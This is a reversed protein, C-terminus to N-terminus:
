KFYKYLEKSMNEAILRRGKENPHTTDTGTFCEARNSATIGSGNYNDIVVLDYENGIEKYLQIYDTLKIGNIEKTNSDEVFNGSDDIWFRYVPTCLVIDIHPYKAKITEISYKAASKVEDLSKGNKFDNTGYAITIIDVSNFDISKLTPLCRQYATPANGSNIVADQTTWDGTTIADALNKMGFPEYKAASNESMQASGFGVNHVTAATETAIMSSIDVPSKYNGFISDGFNVITKGKLNYKLGQYYKSYLLGETDSTVLKADLTIEKATRVDDFMNVSYITGKFNQTNGARNDGGVCFNNTVVPLAPNATFAEKLVGDIYLNVRSGNITVAIHVPDLSRIDTKFLYTYGVGGTKYYFRLKGDNYVEINIQGENGGTYNGIIVGARDSYDPNLQVVAEYTKPAASLTDIRNLTTSSPLGATTSFDINNEGFREESTEGVKLVKKCLTCEKHQAGSSTSTPAIDVIWESESHEDGSTNKPCTETDFVSSHLLNSKDITGKISADLIEAGSRVNSYLNISYLSGKFYQVNGTRNDGGIHYNSLAKSPITYALSKTEVKKGDVYLAAVKNDVTVAIHRPNNSRIDTKFLCNLKQGAATYFLRVRGFTFLELNLQPETGEKYNGVIVGAREDFSEPVSLTAEITHPVSSLASSIAFDTSASFIKGDGKTHPINEIVNMYNRTAILGEENGTLAIADRAIEEATRVDSFVNLSYITGKFFQANGYRKDGGVLLNDYANTPLESSLTISDTKKGNLYMTAITGDITVAIHVPTTRRIDTKFFQSIKVGKEDVFFIKIRGGDIVEFNFANVGTESKYNGLIIGGRTTIESPLQVVAEITRPQASLSGFSDKESDNYTKGTFGTSSQNETAFDVSYILEDSDPAVYISDKQIEENTRGDAFINVSYITGKFYQPNGERNDGGVAYDVTSNALEYPLNLTETKIGNVFLTATHGDIRVATHTPKDSRIDTGFICDTRQHKKNVSFLRLKGNEYVELSLANTKQSSTYNGFIVGARDSIDKPVSITAEITLPSKELSSSLKHLSDPTFTKGSVSVISESVDFFEKAYILSDTDDSVGNVDSAIEEATRVDDFLSLSYIGGQFYQINGTRNDGGIKYGSVAKQPLAITLPSTEVMKGDIYLTAISDDITVAIHKKKSSRMDTEFICNQRTGNEAIYFLRLKGHEMVELNIVNTSEMSTYNGLIVGARSSISKPLQLEVEITRPANDFSEAISFTVNEAFTKEKVKREESVFYGSHLLNYSSDPVVFVDHMIETATRLDGFINVSYITGKFYKDHSLANEGIAYGETAKTPLPLTLSISENKSGNLYLTATDNGLAVAIHTPTGVPIKSGFDYTAKEGNDSVTIFQVKRDPTVALSLAPSNEALLNGVIVGGCAADQPLAVTAEITRPATAFTKNIHSFQAANFTKGTLKFETALYSTDRNESFRSSYILSDPDDTVFIADRKIEEPTRVSNFLNVSYITGKFHSINGSRNDGGVLFGEATLNSLAFPLTKTEVLEGNLFLNAFSGDITLAVNIPKESRLDTDFICDIKQGDTNAFYLRAKGSHYVEFNLQPGNDTAYNGVIVGGREILGKNLQITAEITLPIESIEIPILSDKGNYFTKGNIGSVDTINEENYVLENSKLVSGCLTCEKHRIGNQAATPERDVIWDSETHIATLKVIKGCSLCERYTYGDADETPEVSKTEGFNHDNLAGSVSNEIFTYYVSDKDCGNTEKIVLAFNSQFYMSGSHMNLSNHLTVFQREGNEVYSFHLDKNHIKGFDRKNFSKFGIDKGVVLDDFSSGDFTDTVTYIKNKVNKNKHFAETLMTELQKGLTFGGSYEAANWAFNIYDESDYLKRMYKCYPNCNEDWTLTGGGFPTFYLEFVSDNEGGIYVIRESEDIESAKGDLILNIQETSKENMLHQLLYIQEQEKYQPILRLYNIATKYLAEHNTIITGTQLKYNANIATSNIGDLNSSSTYVANKHAVGNMDLYHSVACMKTHMMDNGGRGGNSLSWQCYTFDLYDDIVGNEVYAPDCPDNLKTTFYDNLNLASASVPYADRHGIANVHIGMKAATILLYSIRVFGYQDYERDQLDRMYGFYRSNRNINVAAQVSFRYSAIDIYVEEQPHAQKYLIAQYIMTGQGFNPNDAKGNAPYVFTDVMVDQGNIDPFVTTNKSMFNSKNSLKPLKDYTSNIYADSSKLGLSLVDNVSVPEKQPVIVDPEKEPEYQNYTPISAEAENVTLANAIANEWYSDPLPVAYDVDVFNSKNIYLTSNESNGYIFSGLDATNGSVTMGNITVATGSTTIYMVGGRTASNGKATTNYFKAISGESAYIAGGYSNSTNEKFTCDQFIADTGGTYVVVAGGNGDATNSEFITNYIKTVTNSYLSIAGAISSSHNSHIYSNYLTLYSGDGTYLFGGSGPATNETATINNMVASAGNYLCVAGGMHMTANDTFNVSDLEIISGSAYIAGGDSGEAITTNKTFDSDKIYAMVKNASYIAGGSSNASNSEVKSNKLSLIRHEKAVAHRTIYFAGGLSKSASGKLLSNTVTVKSNIDSSSSYSVYIAGGNKTASSNLIESNDVNLIVSHLAIAGGHQGAKSNEFFSDKINIESEGAAYIVGGQSDCYNDTFTCNTIDTKSRRDLNLVGGSGGIAKNETFKCNIATLVPGNEYSGSASTLIIAGGSKAQNGTFECDTLEIFRPVYKEINYYGFIAGGKSPAINGEFTTNWAAMQGYAAIAGANGSLAQNGNFTTNGYCILVSMYSTYIAGAGTAAVNNEFLVQSDSAEPSSGIHLHAAATNASYIAGGNRTSENGIFEGGLINAIRYNYIAGGRLSKNGEFRGGYINLNSYNIIAGGLSSIYYSNGEEDYVMDTFSSNNKYNGGYISLTGSAVVAMAGGWRDPSGIKHYETHTRLNSTKYANVISVNKHLDVKAGNCVFLVSGHVSETVKDRNGDITLLNEKVSLPNGLTLKIIGNENLVGKGDSSEGVVFIDGLFNEARTLTREITSFITTNSGIYFTRDIEFDKVVRIYPFKESLAAELQASSSVDIADKMHEYSENGYDLYKPIEGPTDYVTLKNYIAKSWYASDYNGSHDLDTYKSKDIYLKANTTNGWIIPAGSDDTNGSVTLGVATVNTGAATHYMFGGHGGHNNKATINYIYLQSKGSVFIAGGYAESTNDVFECSHLTVDTGSTYVSVAGANGGASNGIFKTAYVSGTASTYFYIAGAAGTSVSNKIESNYINLTAGTNYAFGGSSGSNGDAKIDNMLLNSEQSLYLAGGYSTSSNNDITARNIEMTAAVSSIAGGQKARNESFTVLFLNARAESIYIAGGYNTATNKTFSTATVNLELQNEKGNGSDIFVAGASGVASNEQFISNEITTRPNTAYIAGGHGATTSNSKFTTNNVTLVNRSSIAGGDDDSTNGEFVVKNEVVENEEGIYLFAGTSNPVYIAGGQGSSTNNTITANYIYAKRYNFLFGGRNAHNGSFNGGYIKLTGFNYIAGGTSSTLSGDASDSANLVKNNTYSGGYINMYSSSAVIIAAGGVQAPYSVGYKETLTKENGVKKCNKITLNEYLNATSSKVVFIASGVVDVTMNDSNGDITLLDKETSEESGLNFKVGNKIATGEATEGVVFIDGAFNADRTLTHAEESFITTDSSIYFTRDVVIDDIIKIHGLKSKLARELQASTSVEATVMPVTSTIEEGTKYDIYSPIDRTVEYVKLKNAITAAWYEADWDSDFSLDVYKTKDIYLKANTTNGYIIPGGTTASNNSVVLGLATVVTSAATEYMFGGHSGTNSIATINYLDLISKGSVFIAGGFASSTNNEFSCSHIVVPTGGTYVGIAGGNGGSATNNKFSSAYVGGSASTYYYIAGAAGSSTNNTFTSNYIDLTSTNVYAFASGDATNGDATVDNLIATSSEYLSIAGGSYTTANEIFSAGDIEISGGTSYIAGGYKTKNKEFTVSSAYMRANATIYIAGGYSKANNEEFTTSNIALEVEDASDNNGSVYIAGGYTASQNRNFVSNDITIKPTYAVIAGGQGSTSTNEEFIANNVTLVNRAYLAGGDDEAINSKFLVSPEIVDNEEGVYMFASDSNPVYVAGGLEGSSNNSVTGNYLHMKRYNFFAGGRGAHNGDFLGGYVSLTGYNYIVGGQTSTQGEDTSDVIDIVSNGSYTGGYINMFSKSSVIAVAGGVRNPYSVSYLGLKTRENGVKKCNTVTLNEYLNATSGTVVFIASGVVDVTMNNKNGDITLLDKETSDPKGLTLTVGSETFTGDPNEGVLFIDGSFDVARTLVHASETFIITGSTVYFTRDIYFDSDIRILRHKESLAQSLEEASTVGVAESYDITNESNDNEDGDLDGGLNDDPIEEPDGGELDGGLEEDPIETGINDDTDVIEAFAVYPVTSLALLCVLVLSIIKKTFELRAM